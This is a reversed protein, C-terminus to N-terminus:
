RSLIRIWIARRAPPAGDDTADPAQARKWRAGSSATKEASGTHRSEDGVSNTIEDQCPPPMIGLKAQSVGRATISFAPGHFSLRLTLSSPSNKVRTASAEDPM